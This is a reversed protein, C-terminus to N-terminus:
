EAERLCQRVRVESYEQSLRQWDMGGVAAPNRRNTGDYVAAIAPLRRLQHPDTAKRALARAEVASLRLRPVPRGALRWPQAREGGTEATSEPILRNRCHHRLDHIRVGELVARDRIRDWYHALEPLHAGLKRSRIIWPNGEVREIGPLLRLVPTTLPVMRPGRKGDLLRFKGVTRDRDDWQLTLIESKHCGTLMPLRIAAIAPPWMSRNAKADRLAAGFSRYEDPSLFRERPEERYHRVRNCPNRGHPM